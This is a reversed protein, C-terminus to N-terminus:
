GNGANQPVQFEGVFADYVGLVLDHVAEEALTTMTIIYTDEGATFRTQYQMLMADERAGYMCVVERAAMGHLDFDELAIFQFNELSAGLFATIEEETMGRFDDEADIGAIVAISPTIGATAEPATLVIAPGVRHSLLTWGDPVPFRLGSPDTYYGGEVKGGLPHGAGGSAFSELMARIDAETIEESLGEVYAQFAAATDDTIGYEALLADFTEEAVAPPVCLLSAALLALLWVRLKKM